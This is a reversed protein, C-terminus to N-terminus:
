SAEPKLSKSIHTNSHLHRAIETLRPETRYKQDRVDIYRTVSKQQRQARQLQVLHVQGLNKEIAALHPEILQISSITETKQSGHRDSAAKGDIVTILLTAGECLTTEV